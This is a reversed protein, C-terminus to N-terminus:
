FAGPHKRRPAQFLTTEKPVRGHPRPHHSHALVGTGRISYAQRGQCLLGSCVIEQFTRASHAGRDSGARKINCGDFATDMNTDYLGYTDTAAVANLFATYQGATVEYKGINYTYAMAGYGPTAYRTDAANGPDGVTVTDITIVAQAARAVLLIAALGLGTMMRAHM